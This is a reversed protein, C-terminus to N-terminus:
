QLYREWEVRPIELAELAQEMTLHLNKMMYSIATRMGEQKGELQGELIGERRGERRGKREGERRGEDRADKKMEKWAKCM